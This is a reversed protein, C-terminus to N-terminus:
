FITAQEPEQILDDVARVAQRDPVVEALVEGIEEQGTEIVPDFLCFLDPRIGPIQIVADEEGGVLGAKVLQQGIDPLIEPRLEFQLQLRVVLDEGHFGAAHVKAAEDM